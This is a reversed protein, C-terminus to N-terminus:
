SKRSAIAFRGVRHHMLHFCVGLLCLNKFFNSRQYVDWLWAWQAPLEGPRGFMAPLHITLTVLVLFVALLMAAARVQIGTAVSLGGSLLLLGAAVSAARQNGLWDPMLGRIIEDAFIHELGLGIFILSFLLRFILDSVDYSFHTKMAPMAM